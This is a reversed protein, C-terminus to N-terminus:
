LSYETEVINMLCRGLGLATKFGFETDYLNEGKSNHKESKLNLLKIAMTGIKLEKNM